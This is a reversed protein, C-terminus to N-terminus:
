GRKAGAQSPKAKDAFYKELAEVVAATTTDAALVISQVGAQRLAGATVPGVATIALAHQLTPLREGGFLELFHQVASPSFFLLADAEGRAIQSLKREYSASPRLTRYAIVETVHAGHRGLAVPLDPNARDSRPLFVNQHELRQGLEDALALGNHTNAVYEVPLGAQQVAQATAPGVVAIRLQDEVGTLPRGLNKSRTVVARVAQASTFIMWDFRERQRIARDLPAFDEPDAFAVLPLV